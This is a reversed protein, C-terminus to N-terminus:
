ISNQKLIETKVEPEVRRTRGDFKILNTKYPHAEGEFM